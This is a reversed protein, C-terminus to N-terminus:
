REAQYINVGATRTGIWWRGRADRAFALPEAGSFGSNRPTYLKWTEGNFEALVGGVETPPATGVWLVGPEVEALAEVSNFPLDSNGTRYFQWTAGSTGSQPAWVGLGGGLTGAWLRGASDLLLAPVGGWTPDFDGAFSLWDGTATDLRSVGAGTGFWVRDGEPRPDVALSLVRSNGLGSNTATFPMWTQGTGTLAASSDYVAAGAGTAVWLRGDSGVALAYIPAPSLGMQAASFAQWTAGDYRALGAETGFWYAPGQRAVALVRNGPLGSNETTYVLWRDPLDTAEPPLWFAAGRDTGLVMQEDPGTALAYVTESPLLSNDTTLASWGIRGLTLELTTSTYIVAVLLGLAGVAIWFALPPTPIMQRVWQWYDDHERLARYLHRAASSAALCLAPTVVLTYQPWKTPWLLLVLLSTVIWVVVWRRERWEWYLGPLALLFILGDLGPYFFVEPHWESPPSRSIWYLPQYWPYGAVEVRPGQSYRVHFFLSDALRNVPDHWLTPDLLWFVAGAALGYLLLDHWRLRKDWVALYLLPFLIPLYTFKGAATVGLALASLWFGLGRTPRDRGAKIRSFALVAVISALHPLAELYVQSTYKVALTHVALLGGALPDFVALVLVALTGLVASLARGALGAVLTSPDGGLALVVLGYLVKVLAPHERNGAYDIVADWDGAQIARAYDFAAQLYTPEDYDIPLRMVAWARLLLALLVICVLIGWRRRQSM